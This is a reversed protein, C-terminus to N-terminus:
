KCIRMKKIANGVVDLTHTTSPNEVSVKRVASGNIKNM